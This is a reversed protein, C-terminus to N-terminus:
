HLGLWSGPRAPRPLNGGDFCGPHDSTAKPGRSSLGLEVPCPAPYRGTPTVRLFTCCLASRWGRSLIRARTAVLGVPDLRASRRSHRSDSPLPSVTRYSRVPSGPSLTPWAFGVRLLTSYPLPSGARPERTSRELGGAVDPRSSHDGGRAPRGSRSVPSPKCPRKSGGRNAPATGRHGAEAPPM